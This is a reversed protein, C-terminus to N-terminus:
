IKGLYAKSKLMGLIYVLFTVWKTFKISNTIRNFLM